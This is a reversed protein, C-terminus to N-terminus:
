NFKGEWVCSQCSGTRQVSCETQRPNWGQLHVSAGAGYSRPNSHSWHRDDSFYVHQGVMNSLKESTYISFTWLSFMEQWTKNLKFCSNIEVPAPTNHSKVITSWNMHLSLVNAHHLWKVIVVLICKAAIKTICIKDHAIIWLLFFYRICYSAELCEPLELWIVDHLNGISSLIKIGTNFWSDEGQWVWWHMGRGQWGVGHCRGWSSTWRSVVLHWM